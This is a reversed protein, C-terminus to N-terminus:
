EANEAKVEVASGIAALAANVIKLQQVEVKKFGWILNIIGVALGAGIFGFGLYYEGRRAIELGYEILTFAISMSGMLGAATKVKWNM